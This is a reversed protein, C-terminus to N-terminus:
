AFSTMLFEREREKMEQYDCLKDDSGDDNM